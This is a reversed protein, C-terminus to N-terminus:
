TAGSAGTSNGHGPNNAKRGQGGSAVQINFTTNAPINFSTYVFSSGGGGGGACGSNGAGGGGGGGIVLIYINKTINFTINCTAITQTTNPTTFNSFIIGTWGNNQIVNNGLNSSKNTISYIAPTYPDYKAFIDCLDNVGDSIKYGTTNAKTGSGPYAAFIQNLDDGNTTKYGTATPYATGLSIPQFISSLDLSGITYYTIPNSM